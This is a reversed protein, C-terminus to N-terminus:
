NICRLNTRSNHINFQFPNPLFIRSIQTNRIRMSAITDEPKLISGPVELKGEPLICTELFEPFKMNLEERLQGAKLPRMRGTLYFLQGGKGLNYSRINNDNM